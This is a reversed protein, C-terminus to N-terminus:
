AVEQLTTSYTTGNENKFGGVLRYNIATILICCVKYNECVIYKILM